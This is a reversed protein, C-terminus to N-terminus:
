GAGVTPRTLSDESAGAVGEGKASRAAKTARGRTAPSAREASPRRSATATCVRSASRVVHCDARHSTSGSPRRGARRRVRLAGPSDAGAHAGSPESSNVEARGSGSASFPDPVPAPSSGFGASHLRGASPPSARSTSVWGPPIPATLTAASVPSTTTVAEAMGPAVSASPSASRRFRRLSAPTV